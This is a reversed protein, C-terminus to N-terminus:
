SCWRPRTPPAALFGDLGQGSLWGADGCHCFLLADEGLRARMGLAQGAAAPIMVGLRGGNLETGGPVWTVHGTIDLGRRFGEVVTEEDLYGWAALLSFYGISAHAHEITFRIRENDAVAM